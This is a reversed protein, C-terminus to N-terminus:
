KSVKILWLPASQNLSSWVISCRQSEPPPLTDVCAQVSSSISLTFPKTWLSNGRRWSVKRAESLSHSCLPPRFQYCIWLRGIILDYQSHGIIDPNHQAWDWNYGKGTELTWTKAPPTLPFPWVTFSKESGWKLRLPIICKEAYLLIAAWTLLLGM